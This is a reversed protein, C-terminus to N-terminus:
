SDQPDKPDLLRKALLRNLQTYVPYAIFKLWRKFKEDLGTTVLYRQKEIANVAREAVHEATTGIMSPVSRAENQSTQDRYTANNVLPTRVFGPCVTLVHINDRAVEARLSESFAMIAAKTMSYFAASPPSTLASASCTFAICGSQRQKFYPLLYHTLFIPTTQNIAVTKEFDTWPMNSAQGMCMIGANCFLIDIYGCLALAEDALRKAEDTTSLDADICALVKHQIGHYAVTAQLQQQSLDTLILKAGADALQGALARGIGSGAGTLLVIKERIQM